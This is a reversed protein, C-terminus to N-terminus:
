RIAKLIENVARESCEGDFKGIMNEIQENRITQNITKNQADNIDNFINDLNKCISITDKNYM